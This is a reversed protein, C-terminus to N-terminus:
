KLVRAARWDECEGPPYGLLVLLERWMELQSIWRWRIQWFHKQIDALKVFKWIDEFRADNLVYSMYTVREYLDDSAIATHVDNETVRPDWWIFYLGGKTEPATPSRQLIRCIPHLPRM